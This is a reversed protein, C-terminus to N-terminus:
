KTEKKPEELHKIRLDYDEGYYGDLSFCSIFKGFDVYVYWYDLAEVVGEGFDKCTVKDGVKFERQETM